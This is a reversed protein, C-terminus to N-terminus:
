GASVSCMGGKYASGYWSGKCMVSTLIKGLFGARVCLAMKFKVEKLGCLSQRSCQVIQCVPVTCLAPLSLSPIAVHVYM